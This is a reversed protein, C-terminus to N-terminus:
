VPAARPRDLVRLCRAGVNHFCTFLQQFNQTGLSNTASLTNVRLALTVVPVHRRGRAGNGLSGLPYRCSAAQWDGVGDSWKVRFFKDSRGAILDSFRLALVLARRICFLVIVAHHHDVLSDPDWLCLVFQDLMGQNNRVTPRLIVSSNFDHVALELGHEGDGVSCLMDLM